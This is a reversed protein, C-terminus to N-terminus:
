EMMAQPDIREIRRRVYPADIAIRSGRREPAEFLLDAVVSEVVARLGRAGAGRDSSFRVIERLAGESFSLDVGDAALLEKVERVVADPPGTLVELLEDPSLEDLQVVVPLRGLFEALM